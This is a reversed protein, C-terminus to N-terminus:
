GVGLSLRVPSTDQDTFIHSETQPNIRALIPSPCSPPQSQDSPSRDAPVPSGPTAASSRALTPADDKQRRLACFVLVDAKANARGGVRHAFPPAPEGLMAEIAKEVLRTGAGRALDAIVRDSLRNAQRQLGRWPIPRVPAQARHRARDAERGRGDM